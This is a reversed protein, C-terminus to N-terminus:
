KLRLTSRLPLVHVLEGTEAWIEFQDGDVVAGSRVKEALLERAAIIAEEL